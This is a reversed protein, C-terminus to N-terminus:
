SIETPAAKPDSGDAPPRYSLFLLFGVLCGAFMGILAGVAAPGIGPDAMGVITGIIGFTFISYLIRLRREVASRPRAFTIGFGFGILGGVISGVAVTMFRSTDTGKLSLFAGASALGVIWAVIRRTRKSIVM